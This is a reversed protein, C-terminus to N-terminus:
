TTSKMVPIMDKRIYVNCFLGLVFMWLIINGGGYSLLPMGGGNLPIVNTLGLIYLVAHLMMYTAALRMIGRGLEHKVNAALRYMVGVLLGFVALLLLGGIWGFTYIIFLTMNESFLYPIHLTDTLGHGLWGAETLAARTQDYVYSDGGKGEGQFIGYEMWSILRRRIYDSSALLSLGGICLMGIFIGIRKWSIRLWKSWLLVLGTMYIMIAFFRLEYVYFLIPVMSIFLLKWEKRKLSSTSQQQIQTYWLYLGLLLPFPSLSFINIYTNFGLNLFTHGNVKMGFMQAAVMTALILMLIFMGKNLWKRYDIACIVMFFIMGIGMMYIHKTTLSLGYPDSPKMEYIYMTLCSISIWVVLLLWLLWPWRARHVKNLQRATELPEGMQRVAAAEADALSAGLRIEEDVRSQMHDYLEARILPYMERAKVKSEVQQIFHDLAGEIEEQASGGNDKTGKLRRMFRTLIGM